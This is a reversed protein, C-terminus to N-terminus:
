KRGLARQSVGARRIMLVDWVVIKKGAWCVGLCGCRFCGFWTIGEGGDINDGENGLDDLGWMIHWAPPPKRYSPPVMEMELGPQGCGPKM